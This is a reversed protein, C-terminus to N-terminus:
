RAASSNRPRNGEMCPALPRRAAGCRAQPRVRRPIWRSGQRCQMAPMGAAANDPAFAFRMTAPATFRVTTEAGSNQAATIRSLREGRSPARRYGWAPSSLRARIPGTEKTRGAASPSLGFALQPRDYPRFMSAIRAALCPSRGGPAPCRCIWSRRAEPFPRGRTREFPQLVAEFSSPARWRECRRTECPIQLPRPHGEVAVVRSKGAQAPAQGRRVSGRDGFIATTTVAVHDISPKVSPSRVHECAPM